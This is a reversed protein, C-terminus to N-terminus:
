LSMRGRCYQDLDPRRKMSSDQLRIALSAISSTNGGHVSAIMRPGDTGDGFTVTDRGAPNNLERWTPPKGTSTVGYCSVKKLFADDEGQGQDTAPKDPEFPNREWTRRWYCLSTGLAYRTNGNSYLWAEGPIAGVIAAAREAGFHAALPGLARQDIIQERWFLMDRYGVCEKGSAQLLAIQEAVRNPHSWDDSDWHILIDHKVFANAENRLAGIKIGERYAEAPIHLINGGRQESTDFDNNLEGTDWILLTKSQYTQANFSRVARRVMAERGNVLCIACVTPQNM